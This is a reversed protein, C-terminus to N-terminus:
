ETEIEAVARASPVEPREGDNRACRLLGSQWRPYIRSQKAESAIVLPPMENMEGAHKYRSSGFTMSVDRGHHLDVFGRHGQDDRVRVVRAQGLAHGPGVLGAGLDLDLHRHLPRQREIQIRLLDDGHHRDAVIRFIQREAIQQVLVHQFIIVHDGLDFVVVVELDHHHAGLVVGIELGLQLLARLGRAARLAGGEAIQELRDLADRQRLRSSRM